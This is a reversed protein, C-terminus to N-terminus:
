ASNMAPMVAVQSGFVKEPDSISLITFNEELAITFYINPLSLM